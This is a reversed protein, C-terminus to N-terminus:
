KVSMPVLSGSYPSFGGSGGPGSPGESGVAYQNGLAHVQAYLGFYSTRNTYVTPAVGAIAGIEQTACYLGLSIDGIADSYIPASSGNRYFFERLLAVRFYGQARTTFTASLDGLLIVDVEGTTRVLRVALYLSPNDSLYLHNANVNPLAASAANTATTCSPAYYGDIMLGNQWGSIKGTATFPSTAPNDGCWYFYDGGFAGSVDGFRYSHTKNVIQIADYGSPTATERIPQVFGVRSTNVLLSSDWEEDTILSATDLRAPTVQSANEVLRATLGCNSAIASLRDIASTGVVPSSTASFTPVKAAVLLDGDSVLNYRMAPHTDIFYWRPWSDILLGHIANTGIATVKIGRGFVYAPGTVVTGTGVSKTVTLDFTEAAEAYRFTISNM